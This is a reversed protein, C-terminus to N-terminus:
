KKNNKKNNSGRSLYSSLDLYRAPRPATKTEVVEEEVVSTSTPQSSLHANAIQDAREQIDMEEMAEELVDPRNTPTVSYSSPTQRVVGEMEYSDYDEEEEYHHIAQMQQQIAQPRTSIIRNTPQPVRKSEKSPAARKIRTSSGTSSTSKTPQVPTSVQIIPSAPASVSKKGYMPSIIQSIGGPEVPKALNVADHIARPNKEEEAMNGFIPSIVTSYEQRPPVNSRNAVRRSPLAANQTATSRSSTPTPEQEARVDIRSRGSIVSENPYTVKPATYLDQPRSEYSYSSAYPDSYTASSSRRPTTARPEEVEEKQQKRRSRSTRPKSIIVEEEEEDEEEDDDEVNEYLFSKMLDKFGM